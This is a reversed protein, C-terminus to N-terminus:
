VPAAPTTEWYLTFSAVGASDVSGDSATIDWAFVDGETISPDGFTDISVVTDIPTSAPIGLTCFLVDNKRVRVGLSGIIPIRLVGEFRIATGTAQATVHDAIDDGVATDKVLLTRWILDPGAEGPTGTEVAEIRGLREFFIMWTRSLVQRGDSTLEYM